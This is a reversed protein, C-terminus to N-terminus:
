RKIDRARIAVIELNEPPTNVFAAKPKKEHIDKKAIEIAQEKTVDAKFTVEVAYGQTYRNGAVRKRRNGHIGNGERSKM